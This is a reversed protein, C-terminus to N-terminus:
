GIAVEENRVLCVDAERKDRRLEGGHEALNQLHQEQPLVAEHGITAHFNIGFSRLLRGWKPHEYGSPQGGTLWWKTVTLGLARLPLWNGLLWGIPICEGDSFAMKIRGDEEIILGIIAKPDIYARFLTDQSWKVGRVKSALTYADLLPM